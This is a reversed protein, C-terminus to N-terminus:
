WGVEVCYVDVRCHILEARSAHGVLSAELRVESLVRGASEEVLVELASRSERVIWSVGVELSMSLWVSDRSGVISVSVSAGASSPFM